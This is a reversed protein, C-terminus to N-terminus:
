VEVSERFRNMKDIVNRENIQANKFKKHYHCSIFVNIISICSVIATCWSYPHPYKIWKKDKLITFRLCLDTIILIDIFISAIFSCKYISYYRPSSVEPVNTIMTKSNITVLDYTHNQDIPAQAISASLSTRYNAVMEEFNDSYNVKPSVNITYSNTHGESSICQPSSM